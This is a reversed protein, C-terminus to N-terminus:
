KVGGSFIGQTFRRQAIGFVVLVPLLMIVTGAMINGWDALYQQKFILIGTTLTRKEPDSLLIQPVLYDNWIQVGQLVVFTGIAPRSLPLYIDWYMRFYGSGDITAADVIESPVAKMFATLLFVGFPLTSAIYVLIVGLYSDILGLDLLFRFQPILALQMPLFIGGAIILYVLGSIKLQSRAIAYGCWSAIFTAALMSTVTFFISNRFLLGFNATEWSVIFNDFTPAWPLGTPNLYVEANSKFATAFVIFLPFITAVAAVILFLHILGHMRMQRGPLKM